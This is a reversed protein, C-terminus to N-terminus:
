SWTVDGNGDVVVEGSATIIRNFGGVFSDMTDRTIRLSVISGSIWSTASTDEQARVVTFVDGSRATVKVIEWQTEPESNTLTVLFYEGAAPAPFRDGEGTAVTLSTDGSGISSALSSDANNEFLQISM